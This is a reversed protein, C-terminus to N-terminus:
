DGEDNSTMVAKSWDLAWENKCPLSLTLELQKTNEDVRINTPAVLKMAGPVAFSATSIGLGAILTFIGLTTKM